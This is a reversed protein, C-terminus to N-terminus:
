RHPQLCLLPQAYCGIEVKLPSSPNVRGGEENEKMRNVYLTTDEYM